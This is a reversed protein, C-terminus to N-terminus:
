IMWVMHRRILRFSAAWAGHALGSLELWPRGIRRALAVGQELHREAEAPQLAWLEAAGLTVLALACTRV